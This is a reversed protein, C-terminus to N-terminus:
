IRAAVALDAKHQQEARQQAALKDTLLQQATRQTHAIRCLEVALWDVPENPRVRDLEQLAANLAPYVAAVLYDRASCTKLDM